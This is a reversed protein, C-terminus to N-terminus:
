SSAVDVAIFAQKQVRKRGSAVRPGFVSGIGFEAPARAPQFRRLTFLAFTGERGFGSSAGFKGFDGLSSPTSLDAALM